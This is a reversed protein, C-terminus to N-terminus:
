GAYQHSELLSMKRFNKYNIRGPIRSEAQIELAHFAENIAGYLDTGDLSATQRRATLTKGPVRVNSAVEKPSGSRRSRHPTTVTVKCQIIDPHLRKLRFFRNEIFEELHGTHRTNKFTITLANRM